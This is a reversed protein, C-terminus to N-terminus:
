KEAGMVRALQIELARQREDISRVTHRTEEVDDEIRETREIVLERLSRIEPVSDSRLLGGGAGGTAMGLAVLVVTWPNAVAQRAASAPPLEESM